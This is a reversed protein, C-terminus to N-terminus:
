KKSSRMMSFARIVLLAILAISGFLAILVLTIFLIIYLKSIGTKIGGDLMWRIFLLVFASIFLLTVYEKFFYLGVKLLSGEQQKNGAVLNRKVLKGSYPLKVNEEELKGNQQLVTRLFGKKIYKEPQTENKTM